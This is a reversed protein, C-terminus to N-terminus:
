ATYSVINMGCRIIYEKYRICLICMIEIMGFVDHCWRRPVDKAESAPSLETKVSLWPKPLELLTPGAVKPSKPKEPPEEFNLCEERNM